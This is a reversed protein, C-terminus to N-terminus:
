GSSLDLRSGAAPPADSGAYRSAAHRAHQQEALQEGVADRSRVLAQESDAELQMLRRLMQEAEEHRRRCQQRDAARHWFRTEPDDGIAKRLQGSVEGLDSLPQQKEALVEMLENMRGGEIAQRQRETMEVLRRLLQWRQDVLAALQEGNM